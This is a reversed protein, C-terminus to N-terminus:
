KESEMIIRAREGFVEDDVLTGALRRAEDRRQLNYNAAAANYRANANRRVGLRMQQGRRAIQREKRDAAIDSAQLKEIEQSLRATQADFCEAAGM